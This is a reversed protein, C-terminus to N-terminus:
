NLGFGKGKGTQRRRAKRESLIGRDYMVQIAMEAPMDTYNINKVEHTLSDYFLGCCSCYYIDEREYFSDENLIEKNSM